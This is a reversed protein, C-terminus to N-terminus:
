GTNTPQLLTLLGAAKNEVEQWEEAADSGAVIGAGAYLRLEKEELQACRLAVCFESLSSSLYGASGAYWGRSFPEHQLIFERAAQRPLGAVAATPQLRQLCDADDSRNLLGEIRRRLHQVKRLRVVEPPLVDLSGAGGQLRQCIDDVVLLNEHRNKADNQLWQALAQARQQDPHNAVTGALAETLLQLGNRRYLREPSSGLFASHADFRLMFHYCRHNVRRSADMMAPASLPGDLTLLTSRALVVKEMQQRDIAKLAEHLMIEWGAREPQHQVKGVDAKLPAIPRAAVVKELWRGAADADDRLSSESFLNLTLQTEGERSLIELRPLFLHAAGDFANLGWIRAGRYAGIFAQAEQAQTFLRLEGCAAAEEHGDRHRWYFQPFAPQAALWELLTAALSAPALLSFQRFGGGVPFPSELQRRLRRLLGSLQEM